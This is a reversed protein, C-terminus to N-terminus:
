AVDSGQVSSPSGGPDTNAASISVGGYFRGGVITIMDREEARLEGLPGDRVVLVQELGWM